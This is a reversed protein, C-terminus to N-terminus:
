RERERERECVCVGREREREREWVYVCVCVCVCVYQWVNKGGWVCVCQWVTERQRVYVAGESCSCPWLLLSCLYSRPRGHNPFMKREYMRHALFTATVLRIHSMVRTAAKKLTGTRIPEPWKVICWTKIHFIKSCLFLVQHANWFICVPLPLTCNCHLHLSCLM